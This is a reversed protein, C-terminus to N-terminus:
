SFLNYGCLVRLVGLLCFLRRDLFPLLSPGCILRIVRMFFPHFWLPVFVCRHLFPSSPFRLFLISPRLMPGMPPEIKLHRKAYSKGKKGKGELRRAKTTEEEKAKQEETAYNTHNATRKGKRPGKAM